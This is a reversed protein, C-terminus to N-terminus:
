LSLIWIYTARLFYSRARSASQIVLYLDLLHHIGLDLLHYIGIKYSWVLITKIHTNCIKGADVPNGLCVVICLIWTLAPDRMTVRLREISVSSFPMWILFPLIILSAVRICHRISYWLGPSWTNPVHTLLLEISCSIQLWLILLILELKGLSKDEM